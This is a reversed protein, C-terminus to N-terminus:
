ECYMAKNSEVALITTAEIAVDLHPDIVRCCERRPVSQLESGNGAELASCLVKYSPLIAALVASVIDHGRASETVSRAM